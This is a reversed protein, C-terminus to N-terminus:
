NKAAKMIFSVVIGIAIVVLAPVFWGLGADYLPLISDYFNIVPNMWAFNDIELSDTLTTLGDFVSVCCTLFVTLVYVIRADNFLKSTFALLIIV